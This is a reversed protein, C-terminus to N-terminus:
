PMYSPICKLKKAGSDYRTGQRIQCLCINVIIKNFRLIKSFENLTRNSAPPKCYLPIAVEPNVEFGNEPPKKRRIAALHGNQLEVCLESTLLVNASIEALDVMRCPCFGSAVLLNGTTKRKDSKAQGLACFPAFVPKEVYFFPRPRVPRARYGSVTIPKGDDTPLACRRKRYFYRM